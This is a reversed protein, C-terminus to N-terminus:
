DNETVAESFFVLLSSSSIFNGEEDEELPERNQKRKVIKSEIKAREKVDLSTMEKWGFLRMSCRKEKTKGRSDWDTLCEMM